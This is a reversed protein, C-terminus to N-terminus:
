DYVKNADGKLLWNEGGRRQCMLEENEYIKMLEEEKEYRDLWEANLLSRTEAARDWEEIQLLLNQKLKRQDSGWNRSWGKLSRRLQYSVINWHDLINTRRRQPWKADVWELFGEQSLWATDFIFVSSRSNVACDTDLLLPNHDSGVRTLSRNTALISFRGIM